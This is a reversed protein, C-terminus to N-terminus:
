PPTCWPERGEARDQAEGVDAEVRGAPVPAVREDDDRQQRHDDADTSETVWVSM